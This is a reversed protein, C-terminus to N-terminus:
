AFHVEKSIIEVSKEPVAPQEIRTLSLFVITSRYFVEVDKNINTRMEKEIAAINRKAEEDDKFDREIEEFRVHDINFLIEFKFRYKTM